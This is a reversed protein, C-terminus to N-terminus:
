ENPYYKSLFNQLKERECDDYKINNQFSDGIIIEGSLIKQITQEIRQDNMCNNLKKDIKEM